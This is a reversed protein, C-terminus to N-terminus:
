LPNKVTLILICVGFTHCKTYRTPILVCFECKKIFQRLMIKYFAFIIGTKAPINSVTLKIIRTLVFKSGFSLNFDMTKVNGSDITLVRERYIGTGAGSKADM